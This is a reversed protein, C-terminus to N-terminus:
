TCHCKFASFRFKQKNSGTKIISMTFITFMDKRHAYNFGITVVPLKLKTCKIPMPVIPKQFPFVVEVRQIAHEPGRKRNYIPEDSFYIYVKKSSCLYLQFHRCSTAM